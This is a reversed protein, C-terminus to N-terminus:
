NSYNWNNDLCLNYKSKNSFKKRLNGDGLLEGEIFELLEPSLKIHNENNSM